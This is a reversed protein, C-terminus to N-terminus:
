LHSTLRAPLCLEQDGCCCLTGRGLPGPCPLLDRYVSVFNDRSPPRRGGVFALVRPCPLGAWGCVWTWHGQHRVTPQPLRARFFCFPAGLGGSPKEVQFGRGQPEEGQRGQSQGKPSKRPATDSKGLSGGGGM